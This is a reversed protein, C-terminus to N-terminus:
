KEPEWLMAYVHVDSGAITADSVQRFGHQQYFPINRPNETDLYCPLHQARAQQLVTELLKGGFGHGKQEPDIGLAWLYWHDGLAAREHAEALYRAAHMYRRLGALGIQVPPGSLSTLVLRVTSQTQGPPLCCALGDLDSTTYVTGYRQCYHAVVRFLSPLLRSRKGADPILYVMLPDDQFAKGLLHSAAKIQTANLTIPEALTRSMNM